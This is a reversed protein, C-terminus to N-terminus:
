LKLYTSLVYINRVNWRGRGPETHCYIRNAFYCRRRWHPAPSGPGRFLIQGGGRAMPSARRLLRKVISSIILITAVLHWIKLSFHVLDNTPQLEAGSGAPSSVASGWVGLQIKYVVELPPHFPVLRSPLPLSPLTPSLPSPFPFLISPPPSPAPDAGLSFSAGLVIKRAGASFSFSQPTVEPPRFAPDGVPHLPLAGPWSIQPRIGALLQFSKAACTCDSKQGVRLRWAFSIALLVFMFNLCM